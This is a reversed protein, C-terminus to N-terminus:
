YNAAADPFADCECVYLAMTSCATDDLLTTAAHELICEEDADRSPQGMGWPSGSDPPYQVPEATVWRYTNPTVRDSLGIWLDGASGAVTFYLASLEQDNAVVALHTHMSSMVGTDDLCDAQALQWTTPANVFRYTGTNFTRYMVPCGIDVLGDSIGGDSAADAPSAVGDALHSDIPPTGPEIHRLGFLNDCGASALATVVLLLRVM